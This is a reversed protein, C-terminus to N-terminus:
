IDVESTHGQCVTLAHLLTQHLLRLFERLITEPSLKLCFFGFKLFTLQLDVM